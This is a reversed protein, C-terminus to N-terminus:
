RNLIRGSPNDQFFSMTTRMLSYFMSSHLNASSRMCMECLIVFFANTLATSAVILLGYMQLSWIKDSDSQTNSNRRDERNIWNALFIDGYTTTIQSFIGLFVALFIISVSGVAKFYYLYVRGSTKGVIRHEPVEEQLEEVSGKWVFSSEEKDAVDFKVKKDDSTMPLIKLLDLSSAQLDNFNGNMEIIGNNLLFIRDVDKLYQLQHTVLIRTKNKLFGCICNQFIKKGVHSDVASLPDDLLYIDADVYIARALNIRAKQGGSLTTGKEGIHTKDGFPFKAFDEELQCVRIVEQYRKRDIPLGFIINQRISSAFVWPEQSAYVIKGSLQITGSSLPLEDVILHLLSSKGSGVQGIIASLTGREAIFNIEHLTDKMTQHSWKASAKEIKLAVNGSLQKENNKEILHNIEELCM